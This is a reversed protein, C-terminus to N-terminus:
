AVRRRRLMLLGGLGMLVMSAPEPIASGPNQFLFSVDNASLASNYVQVDDIVGDFTRSGSVDRGIWFDTAAVNLVQGANNLNGGVSDVQVGNIYVSLGNTDGDATTDFDLTSGDYIVAVHYWTSVALAAGTHYSVNGNGYRLGISNGAGLDEATIDFTAGAGTGMGVLRSQVDFEDANFWVSVTRAANSTLGMNTVGNTTAIHDVDPQGPFQVGTNNQGAVTLDAVAAGAGLVLTGNNGNGSSDAIATGTTEDLTYHAVLAASASSAGAAALAAALFLGMMKNRVNM